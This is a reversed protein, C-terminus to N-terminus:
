AVSSDTWCHSKILWLHERHMLRVLLLAGSTTVIDEEVACRKVRFPHVTVEDWSFHCNEYLSCCHLSLKMRFGHLEFSSMNIDTVIGRLLILLCLTPRGMCNRIVVFASLLINATVIVPALLGLSDFLQSAVLLFVPIHKTVPGYRMYFIDEKQSFTKM